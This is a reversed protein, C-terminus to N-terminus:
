KVKYQDYVEEYIDSLMPIYVKWFFQEQNEILSSAKMLPKVGSIWYPPLSSRVDAFDGAFYYATYDSTKKTVAPFTTPIGFSDLIKKGEETVDLEYKYFTEVNGTPTVVDFWYYFKQVDSASALATVNDGKVMQLENEGIHKDYELVVITENEHIYVFGKGEFEWKEDYQQEYLTHMWDPIEDNNLQEFYRGIWGTWTVGLMTEMERRIHMPTPSAFANFEAIVTKDQKTTFAKIIAIDDDNLGGYVIKSRDQSAKRNKLDATYVGYTDVLYLLPSTLVRDEIGKLDSHTQSNPYYGTYDKISRKGESYKEHNIFWILGRHERYEPDPVTKDLVIIPMSQSPKMWWLIVPLFIIIIAILWLIRKTM